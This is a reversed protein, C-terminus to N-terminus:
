GGVGPQFNFFVTRDHCLFFCIAWRDEYFTPNM